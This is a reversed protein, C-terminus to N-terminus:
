NASARVESALRSPTALDFAAAAAATAPAPLRGKEAHHAMALAITARTAGDLDHQAREWLAARERFSRNPELSDALYVVRDLPSMEGAATTHKEIASLIEADDIGYRETALVAGLRAHLLTPHAREFPAIPMGRAECESILRAPSYLRALDHLLGAVRAKGADVAHRQALLDACRAVRVSHNYRHEQGIERAVARMM